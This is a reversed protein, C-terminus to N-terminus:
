FLRPQRADGGPRRRAPKAAPEAVPQAGSEARAAINADHFRLRLEQGLSIETAALLHGQRDEVVAYGRELVRDPSLTELVQGLRALRQDANETLRLLAPLLREAITVRDRQRDILRDITPYLRETLATVRREQEAIQQRPHMLQARDIRAQLNRLQTRVALDLREVRDDLRQTATELLRQPEPLGRALGELRLRRESFNRALAQTLRGAQGSLGALLELRVPVAMEAAATPTPARRDSAYDILTTDTEHGVASILPIASAAAARVVAEENFPMLDELSGGGRAVILLDPRPIPDGRAIRNFGEIAAVIQAAAGEGQVAVPWLLVHRPFRDALRHLIDRIVAGTPSTVVGIVEPLFPLPRKRDAAFLGEATLRKRREELMKLIAGEGALEMQEIVLQYRSRGPYTTLRGTAIVDLGDEPRIALKTVSGRWCVGEILADTDKLSLYIHGSSHRKCGSIEGRVRVHSFSQEITRKLAGSLETVTLVPVNTGPAALPSEATM